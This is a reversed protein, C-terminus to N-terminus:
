NKLTLFVLTIADLVFYVIIEDGYIKLLIRVCIAKANNSHQNLNEDDIEAIMGLINTRFVEIKPMSIM